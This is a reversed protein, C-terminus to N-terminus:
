CRAKPLPARPSLLKRPRTQLWQTPHFISGNPLPFSSSTTPGPQARLACCGAHALAHSSQQVLATGPGPQQMQSALVHICSTCCLVAHWLVAHCLAACCEGETIAELQAHHAHRHPPHPLHVPKHSPEEAPLPAPQEGQQAQQAAQQAEQEAAPQAAPEAEPKHPGFHPLLLSLSSFADGLRGILSRSALDGDRRGESHAPLHQFIDWKIQWGLETEISRRGSPSCTRFLHPTRYMFLPCPYPEDPCGLAPTHVAQDFVLARCM